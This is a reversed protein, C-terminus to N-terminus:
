RVARRAEAVSEQPLGLAEIFWRAEDVDRANCLITWAARVMMEPTAKPIMDMQLGGYDKGAHLM